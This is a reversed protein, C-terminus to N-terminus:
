PRDAYLLREHRIEADDHVSVVDSAPPVDSAALDSSSFLRDKFAREIGYPCEAAHSNYVDLYAQSCSCESMPVSEVLVRLGDPTLM